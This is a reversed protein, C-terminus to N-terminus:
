PNSRYTGSLYLVAQQPFYKLNTFTKNINRTDTFYKTPSLFWDLHKPIKILPIAAHFSFSPIPNNCLNQSENGPRGSWALSTTQKM